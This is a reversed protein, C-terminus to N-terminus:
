QGDILGRRLDAYVRLRNPAHNTAAIKGRELNAVDVADVL